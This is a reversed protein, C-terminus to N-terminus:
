RVVRYVAFTEDDHTGTVPALWAPPRGARLDAWLSGSGPDIGTSTHRGCLAVYAVAHRIAVAKAEDPTGNLIAHAAIVGGSLRHYPAALVAHPTLALVYPGYNIETAVLGAPLRALAGYAANRTCAARDVLGTRTAAGGAAQAFTIAGATVVTPTLLIAAALRAAITVRPSSATLRAVFAAVLPLAFWMAYAYLKAAGVTLALALALALTCLWLAFDRRLAADRALGAAAVLGVLPFAALWAATMPMSRAVFLLSETEDVGNLWLRKVAEDTLAFPGGICRPEILVFAAAAAAGIAVLALGRSLRTRRDAGAAKICLGAGAVVVPVLWNVAIADCAPRGWHAPPVVLLFGVVAGAVLGAGYRAPVRPPVVPGLVLRVALAAGVLATFPANELGIALAVGSLAGALGAASRTRDAWCAAAVAALALAIQVNHHDIRGPRFHQFAPLACSSLLLAILAAGRGGIRWAAVAVSGIAVLLWLLPWLARMLQEALDATVFPRAALYLAALGVDILRSWHGDYGTPPDLRAEHLDFWSHGALFARVEVLRMADDADFLRQGMEPWRQALLVAATVAWALGLLVPFSLARPNTPM